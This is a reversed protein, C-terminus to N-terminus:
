SWNPVVGWAEKIDIELNDCYRIVDKALRVFAATEKVIAAPNIHSITHPYYSDIRMERTIGELRSNPILILYPEDIGVEGLGDCVVSEWDHWNFKSNKSLIFYPGVYVTLSIGM